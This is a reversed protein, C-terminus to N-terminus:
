ERAVRECVSGRGVAPCAPSGRRRRPPQERFGRRQDLAPPEREDADRDAVELVAAGDLERQREGAVVGLREVGGEVLHAVPESRSGGDGAGHEEAAAGFERNRQQGVLTQGACRRTARRVHGLEAERKRGLVMRRVLEDALRREGLAGPKVNASIESWKWGQFM